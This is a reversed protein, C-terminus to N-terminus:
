GGLTVNIQQGGRVLTIRWVRTGTKSAKELDSTRVIKENNVALIIDGKQFGVNAATGDGALDTVVVGEAGADLHLEDALAPSINAVRAGQFPSRATLVIEDRNTDPATELPITLKVPKGARQVEIEANGGLPRTAFRYDFANPDDIPTGDIGVILDSLKLGAKAAPSNPAVNAVLAGSPLKLGLTEAIEPTVAQLRAGLWPRKVNKGGSKASAVVVRVMNAPIAFGIGQSGGSRSFIATNIGALRGTMDVLAGGSNGPNIAADTQIFFQYDTIGVQTRALASIIGHTVTQGVGFPNGIALVVDGVQLQDSNAFDLTAFKEKNTDKLRLVALDTRSDKLVIEAEYERKDALSVKVQDAGEIVHNNTVVLGSGDVMVGSGLSRQMQEPQQGPVGFFRRFIPDDLFPNRNQVTKAAYVNVVAPQVRQVIPAYSLQLEAQSSPVRRDQAAAASLNGMFALTCLASVAAFRVPRLM